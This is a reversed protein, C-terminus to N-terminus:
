NSALNIKDSRTRKGLPNALTPVLFYPKADLKDNRIFESVSGHIANTGTKTIVNIHVGLYAGYQASYTGTQVEVEQVSDM